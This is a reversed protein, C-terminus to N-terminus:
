KGLLVVKVLKAKLLIYPLRLGTFSLTQFTKTSDDNHCDASVNRGKKNKLWQSKGSNFIFLLCHHHHHPRYKILLTGLVKIFFTSKYPTKIFVNLMSPWKHMVM